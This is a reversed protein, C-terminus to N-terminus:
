KCNNLPTSAEISNWYFYICPMVNEQCALLMSQYDKPLTTFAGSNRAILKREEYISELQKKEMELGEKQKLTTVTSIRKQLEEIAKRLPILENTIYMNFIKGQCISTSIWRMDVAQTESYWKGTLVNASSVEYQIYKGNTFTYVQKVCNLQKLWERYPVPKSFMSPDIAMTDTKGDPMKVILLPAVHYAWIVSEGPFNPDPIILQESGSNGVIAPAFSWIKNPKIGNQLLIRAMYHARYQCGNQPYSFAIWGDNIFNNFLVEVKTYEIPVQKYPAEMEANNEDISKGLKKKIDFYTQSNVMLAFLSFMIVPITKTCSM